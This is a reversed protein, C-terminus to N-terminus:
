SLLDMLDKDAEKVEEALEDPDIKSNQIMGINKATQEQLKAFTNEDESVIVTSEVSEVKPAKIPGEKKKRLAAKIADFAITDESTAIGIDQIAKLIEKGADLEKCRPVAAKIMDMTPKFTEKVYGFNAEKKIDDVKGVTTRYKAAIESTTGDELFKISFVLVLPMRGRIIDIKPAKPKKESKTADATVATALTPKSTLTPIESTTIPTVTESTVVEPTVTKVTKATKVAKTTKTTKKAM